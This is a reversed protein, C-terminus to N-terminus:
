HRPSVSGMVAATLLKRWGDREASRDLTIVARHAAGETSLPDPISDGVLVALTSKDPLRLTHWGEERELGVIAGKGAWYMLQGLLVGAVEREDDSHVAWLMGRSLVSRGALWSAREQGDFGALVLWPGSRAGVARVSDADIRGERLVAGHADLGDAVTLLLYRGGTAAAKKAIWAVAKLSGACLAEADAGEGLWKGALGARLQRYHAEINAARVGAVGAARQLTDATAQTLGAAEILQDLLASGDRDADPWFWRPEDAHGATLRRTRALPCDGAHRHGPHQVLELRQDQRLRPYMLAGTGPVCGCMLWAHEARLEAIFKRAAFGVAEGVTSGAASFAEVVAHASVADVQTTPGSRDHKWLSLGM